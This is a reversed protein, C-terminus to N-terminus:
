DTSTTSAAPPVLMSDLRPLEYALGLDLRILFGRRQERLIGFSLPTDSGQLRIEIQSELAVDPAKSVKLAQANTWEDVKEILRDM